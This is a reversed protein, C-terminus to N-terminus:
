GVIMPQNRVLVRKIAWEPRCDLEAFQKSTILDLSFPKHEEAEVKADHETITNLIHRNIDAKAENTIKHISEIVYNRKYADRLDQFAMYLSQNNEDRLDISYIARGNIAHPKLNLTYPSTM